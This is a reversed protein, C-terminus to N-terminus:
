KLLEAMRQLHQPNDCETEKMAVLVFNESAIENVHLIFGTNKSVQRWFDEPLADPPILLTVEEELPAEGEEVQAEETIWSAVIKDKQPHPTMKLVGFVITIHDIPSLTEDNVDYPRLFVLPVLPIAEEGEEITVKIYHSLHMADPNTYRLMEIEEPFYCTAPIRQFGFISYIQDIEEASVNRSYIHWLEHFLLRKMKEPKKWSKLNKEGV